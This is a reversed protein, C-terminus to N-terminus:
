NFLSATNILPIIQWNCSCISRAGVLKSAGGMRQTLASHSSANFYSSIEGLEDIEYACFFLVKRNQPGKSSSPSVSVWSLSYIQVVCEGFGHVLCAEGHALGCGSSAKMETYSNSYVSLVQLGFQPESIIGAKWELTKLLDLPICVCARWYKCACECATCM